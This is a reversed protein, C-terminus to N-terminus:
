SQQYIRLWNIIWSGNEVLYSNYGVDTVAGQCKQLASDTNPGGWTNGAWDGCLTTNLVLALKKFHGPCPNFKITNGQETKWNETEPNDWTKPMLKDNRSWFWVTIQNTVPTLEMAYIGGGDENFRWGASNNTPFKYDCGLYPCVKNKGCGCSYNYTTTDSSNSPKQCNDSGQPLVGNQICKSGSPLENTHLTSAGYTNDNAWEMIKRPDSNVSEIIDIEGNCAWTNSGTEVSTLWWASWIGAAAPMRKIDLVFLGHDYTKTSTLRISKPIEGSISIKGINIQLSDQDVKVLLDPYEGYQVTGNTPDAATFYKFNGKDPHFDIGKLNQVMKYNSQTTQTQTQTSTCSSRCRLITAIFLFLIICFGIIFLASCLKWGLLKKDQM